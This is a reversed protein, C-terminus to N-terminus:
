GFILELPARHFITLNTYELGFLHNELANSRSLNASKICTLFPSLCFWANLPLLIGEHYDRRPFSSTRFYEAVACNSTIISISMHTVNRGNLSPSTSMMPAYRWLPGIRRSLYIDPGWMFSVFLRSSKHPM